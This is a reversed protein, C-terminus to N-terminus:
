KAYMDRAARSITQVAARRSLLRNMVFTAIRNGRGVIVSPRKGLAALAERVVAEPEMVPPAFFSVPRPNSEVYNPTRTAGACVALVDVGHERLEAWLGEALVLNFAKTAAYTAIMASGQFGSLSTMLIIGGRGRATMRPALHHVLTVPGRCNVDITEMKEPLGIDVFPGITSFAANYVLLGVDLDRIQEHLTAIAEESGLDMSLSRVEIGYQSRLREGHQELADSRRATMVLNLGRAALQAAFEAGL